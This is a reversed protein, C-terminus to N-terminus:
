SEEEGRAREEIKEIRTLLKTTRELLEDTSLNDLSDGITADIQASMATLKPHMYPAADKAAQHAMNRYLIFEDQLLLRESETLTTDPEITQLRSYVAEAEDFAFRMHNVMVELPTMGEEALAVAVNSNRAKVINSISLHRYSMLRNYTHPLHQPHKGPAWGDSAYYRSLIM